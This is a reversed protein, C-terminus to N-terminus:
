FAMCILSVLTCPFTLSRGARFPDAMGLRKEYSMLQHVSDHDIGTYDGHSTFRMFLVKRRSHPIVQSRASYLLADM